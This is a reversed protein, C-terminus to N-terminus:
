EGQNSSVKKVFDVIQEDTLQLPKNLMIVNCFDKVKCDDCKAIVIPMNDELSFSIHRSCEERWKKFILTAGQM